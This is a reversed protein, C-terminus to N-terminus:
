RDLSYRPEGPLGGNVTSRREIQWPDLLESNHVWSAFCGQASLWLKCCELTPMTM